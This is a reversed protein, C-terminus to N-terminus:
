EEFKLYPWLKVAKEMTILKNDTLDDIGTIKGKLERYKLIATVEYKEFYPFRLIEKYTASNINIRSILASDAYVRGKIMEYTEAPLGYVEKLQEIRAFGGLLRRYKIIRASLVPGIGPLLVLAASDSLNIDVMAKQNNYNNNSKKFSSQETESFPLHKAAKEGSIIHIDRTRNNWMNRGANGNYSSHMEKGSSSDNELYLSYNEVSFISDTIQEISVRREPVIYRVGLVVVIIILLIFTSRRERRNFGFWNKIPEGNTNM